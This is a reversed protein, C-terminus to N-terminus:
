AKGVVCTKCKDVSLKDSLIDFNLLWAKNEQNFLLRPISHSSRHRVIM